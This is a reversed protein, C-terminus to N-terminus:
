LEFYLIQIWKSIFRYEEWVLNKCGSNKYWSIGTYDTIMLLYYRTFASKHEIKCSKYGEDPGALLDNLLGSM